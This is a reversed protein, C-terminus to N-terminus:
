RDAWSGPDGDSFAKQAVELSVLIVDPKRQSTHGNNTATILKPNNRHFLLLQHTSKRLPVDM